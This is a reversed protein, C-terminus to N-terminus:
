TNQNKWKEDEDITKIAYYKLKKSYVPIEECVEMMQLRILESHLASITEEQLPIYKHLVNACCARVFDSDDLLGQCLFPEDIHINSNVSLEGLCYYAEGRVVENPFDILQLMCTLFQNRYDRPSRLITTQVNRREERDDLLAKRVLNIVRKEINNNTQIIILKENLLRNTEDNTIRALFPILDKEADFDYISYYNISNVHRLISIQDASFIENIVSDSYISYGKMNVTIFQVERRTFATKIEFYVQDDEDRCKDFFGPTMVLIMIKIQKLAKEEEHYFDDGKKICRPAFFPIFLAQNNSNRYYKLTTYIQQALLGSESNGRYCIFINYDSSM